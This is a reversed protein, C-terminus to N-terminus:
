RRKAFIGEQRRSHAFLSLFDKAAANKEKRM